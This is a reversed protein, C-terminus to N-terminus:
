GPYVEEKHNRKDDAINFNHNTTYEGPGLDNTLAKPREEVFRPVTSQFPAASKNYKLLLFNNPAGGQLSFGALSRNEEYQGAAPWHFKEHQKLKSDFSRNTTSMFHASTSLNRM